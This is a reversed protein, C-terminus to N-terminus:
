EHQIWQQCAKLWCCSTMSTLLASLHRNTVYNSDLLIQRTTQLTIMQALLTRFLVTTPSLCLSLTLPLWRWRYTPSVPLFTVHSQSFVVTVFPSVLLPMASCRRCFFCQSRHTVRFFQYVSEFCIYRLLHWCSRAGKLCSTWPMFLLSLHPQKSWCYPYVSRFKCASSSVM